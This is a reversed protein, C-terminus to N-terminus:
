PYVESDISEAIYVDFVISEAIYVDFNLVIDDPQAPPVKGGFSAGPAVGPIGMASLATKQAM